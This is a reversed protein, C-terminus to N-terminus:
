TKFCSREVSCKSGGSDKLEKKHSHGMSRLVEWWARDRLTGM